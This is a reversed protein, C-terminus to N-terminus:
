YRPPWESLRPRAARAALCVRDAIERGHPAFRETTFARGCSRGGRNTKRDYACTALNGIMGLCRTPPELRNSLPPTDLHFTFLLRIFVKAFISATRLSHSRQAHSDSFSNVSSTECSQM